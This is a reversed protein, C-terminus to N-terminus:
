EQLRTWNDVFQMDFSFTSGHRNKAVEVVMRTSDEGEAARKLRIGLDAAAVWDGAGKVEFNETDGRSVANSVQSLCVITIGLRQALQYIRAALTAHKEYESKAGAVHLQQVYDIFLIDLKGEEKKKTAMAEIAGIEFSDNVLQVRYKRVREKAKNFRRLEDETLVSGRIIKQSYIGSQQSVFRAYMQSETMETSLLVMDLDDARAMLEVLFSTKGVSSRGGIIWMHGPVYDVWRTSFARLGTPSYTVGEAVMKDFTDEVDKMSKPVRNELVRKKDLLARIEDLRQYDSGPSNSIDDLQRKISAVKLRRSYGGVPVLGAGGHNREAFRQWLNKTESNFDTFALMLDFVDGNSHATAAKDVLEYHSKLIFDDKDLVDLAKQAKSPNILVEYVVDMELALLNRSQDTLEVKQRM